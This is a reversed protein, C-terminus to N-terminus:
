QQQSDTSRDELSPSLYALQILLSLKRVNGETVDADLPTACGSCCSRYLWKLASRSFGISDIVALGM